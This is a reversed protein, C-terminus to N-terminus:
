YILHALLFGMAFTSTVPLPSKYRLVGLLFLRWDGLLSDIGFSVMAEGVTYFRSSFMRPLLIRSMLYSFRSSIVLNSDSEPGAGPGRLSFTMLLAHIQCAFYPWGQTFYRLLSLFVSLTSCFILNSSDICSQSMQRRTFILEWEILHSQSSLLWQISQMCVCSVRYFGRQM